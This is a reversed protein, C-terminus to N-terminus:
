FNLLSLLFHSVELIMWLNSSGEFALDFDNELLKTNILLKLLLVFFQLHMLALLDELNWDRKYYLLAKNLCDFILM